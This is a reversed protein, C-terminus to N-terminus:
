RSAAASSSRRRRARPRPRVRADDPARARRRAVAARATRARRPQRALRADAPGARARLRDAERTSPVTATQVWAPRHAPPRSRFSPSATRRRRALAQRDAPPRAPPRPDGALDGRLLRDRRAQHAGGRSLAAKDLNSLKLERGEVAVSASKAGEPVTFPQELEVRAPETSAKARARGAKARSAPPGVSMDERVVQEPDKDERLGLYTPHRLSGDSTWETFKVEAVLRPEAVRGRAAARARAPVALQRAGCRRSCSASLRELEADSFGSGVRGVYRLTGDPDHVGLLCRASTSAAGARARCGAASSSSRAPSARSRSGTARACARSIPPTWASPSSARWARSPARACCTKATASCPARADALARRGARARALLERRREYPM